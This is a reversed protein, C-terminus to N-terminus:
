PQLGAVWASIGAAGTAGNMVAVGARVPGVNVVERVRAALATVMRDARYCAWRAAPEATAAANLARGPEACGDRAIALRCRWRYPVTVALVGELPHAAVTPEVVRAHRIQGNDCPVAIAPARPLRRQTASCTVLGILFRSARTMSGCSAQDDHSGDFGDGQSTIPLSAPGKVSGSPNAHSVADNSGSTVACSCLQM